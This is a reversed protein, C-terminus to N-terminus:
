WRKSAHIRGGRGLGGRRPVDRQQFRARGNQDGGVEEGLRRDEGGGPQGGRELENVIKLRSQEQLGEFITDVFSDGGTQQNALLKPAFVPNECAGQPPARAWFVKGSDPIVRLSQESRELQVPRRVGCVM